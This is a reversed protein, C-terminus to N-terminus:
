ESADADIDDTVGNLKRAAVQRDSLTMEPGSLTM